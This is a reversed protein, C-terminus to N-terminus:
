VASMRLVGAFCLLVRAPTAELYANTNGWTGYALVFVCARAHAHVCGWKGRVRTRM